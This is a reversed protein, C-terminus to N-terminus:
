LKMPGFYSYAPTNVGYGKTPSLFMSPQNLMNYTPQAPPTIPSQGLPSQGMPNQAQMYGQPLQYGLKEHDMSFDHGVGAEGIQPGTTAGMSRALDMGFGTSMPTGGYASQGVRAMMGAFGTPFVSTAADFLAGAIIGPSATPYNPTTTLPQTPKGFPLGKYTGNPNLNSGRGDAFGGVNSGPLSKSKDLQSALARDERDSGKGASGGGKMGANSRGTDRAGKAPDKGPM